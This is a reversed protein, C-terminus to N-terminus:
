NNITIFHCSKRTFSKYIESVVFLVLVGVMAFFLLIAEGIIRLPLIYDLIILLVYAGACIWFFLILNNFFMLYEM